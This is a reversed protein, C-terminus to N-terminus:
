TPVDMKPLLLGMRFTRMIAAVVQVLACRHKRKITTGRLDAAVIGADTMRGYKNATATKGGRDVVTSDLQSPTTPVVVLYELQSGEDCCTTLFHTGANIAEMYRGTAPALVLAGRGDHNVQPHPGPLVWINRIINENHHRAKVSRDISILVYATNNRLWRM